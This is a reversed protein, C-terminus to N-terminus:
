SKVMMEERARNRRERKEAKTRERGRRRSMMAEITEDEHRQDASVADKEEAELSITFVSHSRFFFFKLTSWSFGDCLTRSSISSGGGGDEGGRDEGGGGGGGGGGGDAKRM